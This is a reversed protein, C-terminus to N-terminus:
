VRVLPVVVTPANQASLEVGRVSGADSAEFRLTREEGPLLDAFGDRFRHDSAGPVLVAGRVLRAVVDGANRVRVSGRVSGDPAERWDAIAADLRTPSLGALREYLPRRHAEAIAEPDVGERGTVWALLAIGLEVIGAWYPGNRRIDDRLWPPDVDTLRDGDLEESTPIGRLPKTLYGTFVATRGLGHTGTVLLPHDGIWWHTQAGAVPITRSLGLTRFSALPIDFLPSRAPDPRIAPIRDWVADHPRLGVPLVPGLPTTDLQAGRGDGGHFSAQGGTHVFGVGDRVADALASLEAPRFLHAATDWGTLWIVDFRESLRDTWGSAQPHRGTEDVVTFHIGGVGGLMELVPANYRAQGLLLIRIPPDFAPEVVGVWTDARTVEAGGPGRGIARVLVPGTRDPLPLDLLAAVSGSDPPADVAIRRTAVREGGPTFLGVEIELSLPRTTDNIIWLEHEYRSGARRTALPYRDAISILVPAYGAALGFYGIKPRQRHDVVTFKMGPTNERYSWTRSGAIDAFRKRRYSEACYRLGFGQYWQVADVFRELTPPSRDVWRYIRDVSTALGPYDFSWRYSWEEVDIPLGLRGTRGADNGWAAEPPLIERVTEVVPPSIAGFESIFRHNREDHDWFEGFPFGGNWIHEEEFDCFSGHFIADPDTAAVVAEIAAIFDAYDGWLWQGHKRTEAFPCWLVLSAHGRRQRVIDAVEVLAWERYERFRPHEPSVAKMPGLQHFPLEQFILIGLEDCAAYFPEREIFTFAVLHNINGDRLMEVDRRQEDPRPRATFIDVFPYWVGRLYLRQGNLHYALTQEDRRLERIGFVTTAVASGDAVRVTASYLDQAGTDWTWWLRADELTFRHHSEGAGIRAQLRLFTPEGDFNWPRIELELDVTREVGAAAWWECTLQLEAPGPGIAVTAISIRRLMASRRTSIRVDEWLGFPFVAYGSLPLGDWYHLLNGKMYESHKFVVSWTTSPELYFQRDDVRWPCSVAVALEHVPGPHAALAETIELEFTGFQGEHHGVWIGNVWVDCFYDVGGFELFVQDGTGPAAQFSRVYLWEDHNLSTLEPTDEWLDTIGAQVQINGPVTVTGYARSASRDPLNRDGAPRLPARWLEWGDGALSAQLPADISIAAEEGLAKPDGGGAPPTV